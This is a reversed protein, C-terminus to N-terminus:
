GNPARAPRNGLKVEVTRRDGDRLIELEIVDGPRRGELRSVVQDMSRLPRGDLAVLVDGGLRISNGGLESETDGGRIGADDAPAGPTVEQVLVGKEAALNLAALSRDITAGTIGLYARQVRGDRRLRPVVKRATDSPVAFGIGVNGGSSGQGGGTAIQSNIGIVRGAADFLPGGSNGPNIAADTQIVNDIGFGNPADLRRQLASVVGTTLTRELGFPNGIAITPDGVRVESSDGLQLSTLKFGEPDVKLVALDTSQDQGVVKARLTRKDSFSVQVRAAGEIVHANTVITGDGDIVFGSGTAQGEQQRPQGFPSSGRQVVDARIFVVGPAYRRYLERATLAGQGGDAEDGGTGAEGAGALPAPRIVTTTDGGNVAGTLLLVLACAAGGVLASVFSLGFARRV